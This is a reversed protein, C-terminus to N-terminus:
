TFSLVFYKTVIIVAAIAGCPMIVIVMVAVGYPTIVTVVVGMCCLPLSPLGYTTCLCYYRGVCLVIVAVMVGVCHLLGLGQLFSIFKSKHNHNFETFSHKNLM